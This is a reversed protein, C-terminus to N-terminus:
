RGFQCWLQADFTLRRSVQLGISQNGTTEWPLYDHVHKARAPKSWPPEPKAFYHFEDRPHARIAKTDAQNLMSTQGYVM